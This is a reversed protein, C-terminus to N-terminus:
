ARRHRRNAMDARRLWRHLRPNMSRLVRLSSSKVLIGWNKSEGCMRTRRAIRSLTIALQLHVIGSQHGRRRLPTRAPLPLSLLLPKHSAASRQNIHRTKPINEPPLHVPTAHSPCNRHYKVLPAIDVPRMCLSPLTLSSLCSLSISRAYCFAIRLFGPSNDLYFLM